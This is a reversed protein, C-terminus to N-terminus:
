MAIANTKPKGNKSCTGQTNRSYAILYGKFVLFGGVLFKNDNFQCDSNINNIIQDVIMTKGQMMGLDHGCSNMAVSGWGLDSPSLQYPTTQTDKSNDTEDGTDPNLSLQKTKRM